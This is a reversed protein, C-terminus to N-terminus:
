PTWFSLAVVGATGTLINLPVGVRVFDMFRYDGAAYVLTNTQYGVPTAFCASAGLMLAILLPQPAIGTAEAIGIVLPGMLAAVANNSLLESLLLASFYVIAIVMWQPAHILVPELAGVMLSVSGAQELAAGVALMAFILILVDGDISGWAESADICRTLLVIGVGIFAAIGISMVGTASLLVASAMVLIAIWARRRRFATVSAMALGILNPNDRLQAVNPDDAEILLRDAARIRNESLTPGPLHRFRTVGLIRVRQRQLFPIEALPRDISGHSPSVTVEVVTAGAETGDGIGIAFRGESRLTMLAAGDLRAVIRNGAVLRHHQADSGTILRGGAIVGVIQGAAVGLNAAELAMDVAPDNEGLGLETLYLQQEGDAKEAIRPYDSPLFRAMVLLGLVGAAAVALGYPTISFLSFRGLGAQEAIGAVVLNTSTGILTLCGGLVAIVSLPMLLKKPSIGLAEALRFCVPMMVVVFPTSNIFGSVLLGGGFVEIVALRPHRKARDVVYNGVKDIVGTRILAGSLIFMAGVTLPASNSFVGYAGKEDLLGLALMTGAGAVAVVSPSFREWVFAAFMGALVLLGIVAKHEAIFPAVAEM